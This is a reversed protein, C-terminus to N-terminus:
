FDSKCNNCHWQKGIKNSLIGFSLISASKKVTSIRSVNTSSCYPCHVKKVASNKSARESKWESLTKGDFDFPKLDNEILKLLFIDMEEPVLDLEKYYGEIENTKALFEDGNKVLKEFAKKFEKPKSEKVCKIWETFSDMEEKKLSSLNHILDTIDRNKGNIMCYIRNDYSSSRLIDNLINEVAYGCNPCNVAKDSVDHNCETCKILSM